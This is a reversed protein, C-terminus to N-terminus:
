ADMVIFALICCILSCLWFMAVVSKEKMGSMEFHHHIPAMKFVRKGTLKFSGVQIIDSLAEIVFVLGAIPLLLEVKMIIAAVSLAAGLALSGTDGMFVKAPHRNFFLFGLCAGSLAASFVAVSNNGFVVGAMALFFAVLVTIGSALGDLGDTLNVSNVMAVLVFIIFPIYYVGFDAYKNAFPIWVETGYGSYNAMYIAFGAAFIVQLFLKQWARLGLNHKKSVKIYDDTFGIFSFMLTVVIMVVSDITFEMGVITALILGAIIAIGGMTPTGSKKLHSKPGETRIFQRLQKHELIPIEAATLVSTALAAMIMVIIIQPLHM